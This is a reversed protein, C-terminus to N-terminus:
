CSIGSAARAVTACATATLFVSPFPDVATERRRARAILANAVYSVDQIGHARLVRDIYYDLGDSVIHFELGRLRCFDSSNKFGPDISRGTSCRM